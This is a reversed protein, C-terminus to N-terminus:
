ITYINDLPLVPCGCVFCYEDKGSGYTCEDHLCTTVARIEYAKKFCFGANLVCGRSLYADGLTDWEEATGNKQCQDFAAQLDENSVSAM